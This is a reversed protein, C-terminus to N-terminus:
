PALFMCPPCRATPHGNGTLKYNAGQTIQSHSMLNVVHLLSQTRQPKSKQSLTVQYDVKDSGVRCPCQAKAELLPSEKKVGFGKGGQVKVCPKRRGTQVKTTPLASHKGVGLPQVCHVLYMDQTISHIIITRSKTDYAHSSIVRCSVINM